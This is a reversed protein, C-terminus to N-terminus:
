PRRYRFTVETYEAPIQLPGGCHMAARKAIDMLWPVSSVVPPPQARRGYCKRPLTTARRVKDTAQKAGQLHMWAPTFWERKSRIWQDACYEKFQQTFPVLEASIVDTCALATQLVIPPPQECRNSMTTAATIIQSLAEHAFFLKDSDSDGLDHVVHMTREADDLFNLRRGGVERLFALAFFIAWWRRRM